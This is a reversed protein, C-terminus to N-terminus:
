GQDTRRAHGAHSIAFGFPVRCLTRWHCGGQWDLWSLLPGGGQGAIHNRVLCSVGHRAPFHITKHPVGERDLGLLSGSLLRAFFLALADLKSSVDIFGNFVHSMKM